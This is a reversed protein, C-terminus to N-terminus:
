MIRCLLCGFVVSIFFSLLSILVAVPICKRKIGSFYVATIYFVTEASGYAVCASRGIFSDVGYKELIDSIVTISGSGSLPKVLMLPLIESPVGLLNAIPRALDILYKELGSVSLLEFLLTATVLYPFVSLVLPIAGKVGETFTDFLKVKKLSAFLFSFIFILPIVLAFIKM